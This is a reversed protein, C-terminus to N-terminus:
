RTKYITQHILTLAAEFDFNQVLQAIQAWQGPYAAQLLAAHEDCLDIAASDGHTLLELLRARVVELKRLNEASPAPANPASTSPESTNAGSDENGLAKLGAM